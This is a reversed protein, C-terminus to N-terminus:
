LEIAKGPLALKYSGPSSALAPANFAIGNFQSVVLACFFIIPAPLVLLQVFHFSFQVKSATQQCLGFLKHLCHFSWGGEVLSYTGPLASAVGM